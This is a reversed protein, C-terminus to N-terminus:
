SCPQRRQTEGVAVRKQQDVSYPRRKLDDGNSMLAAPGAEPLAALTGLTLQVRASPDFTELDGEAEGADVHASVGAWLLCCRDPRLLDATAVVAM